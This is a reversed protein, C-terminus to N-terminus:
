RALPVPVSPNPGGKFVIEVLYVLDSINVGEFADIDFLDLDTSVNEGRFLYNVFLVLDAVDPGQGDQNLDGRRHGIMTFEGIANFIADNLL